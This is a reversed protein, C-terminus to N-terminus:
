GLCPKQGHRPHQMQLFHVSKSQQRPNPALMMYIVMTNEIRVRQMRILLSCGLQLVQVSLVMCFILIFNRKGEDTLSDPPDQVPLM